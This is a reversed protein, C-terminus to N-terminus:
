NFLANFATTYDVNHEGMYARIRKDADISAPSTGEAYDV